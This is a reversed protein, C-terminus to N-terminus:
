AQTDIIMGSAAAMVGGTVNSATNASPVINKSTATAATGGTQAKNAERLRENISENKEESSGQVGEKGNGLTLSAINFGTQSGIPGVM